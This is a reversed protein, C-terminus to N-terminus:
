ESLKRNVVDTQLRVSAKHIENWVSRVLEIDVGQTEAGSLRDTIIKRWRELQFVTVGHEAKYDGIQAVIEQRHKLSELLGRDVEDILKRLQELKNKAIRDKFYPQKEELNNIFSQFEDLFIQQKPDSLAEDPNPHTELMLGDFGLDLATQSIEKLVARNGGIHSPDVIIELDPFETKLEIPIEWNPNNRYIRKEYTSFGRHIAVIKEIGAANLREIAGVWLQLDPNLPNKVFVPIDSGKLADAIEQVSFPNVTTRAGIWVHRIGAYLAAKVHEENAVEIIFPIGFEKEAKILWPLAKEGMGEFSNPRTRPKWVGARLLQVNGAKSLTEAVQMIQAESEASCPGAVILPSKANSLWESTSQFKM